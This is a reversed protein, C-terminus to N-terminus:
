KSVARPPWMIPTRVGKRIPVNLARYNPIGEVAPAPPPDHIWWRGDAGRVLQGPHAIGYIVVREESM